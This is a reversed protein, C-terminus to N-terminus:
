SKRGGTHITAEASMGALLRLMQPQHSDLTIKVPIRQVVKTFNGTANDPTIASFTVGTAPSFSDVVGHLIDGGLSDVRVDVPQGQRVDQLQTEQFNAIVYAQRLPVLVLLPSGPRVFAGQRAVRQGVWGDAPATIQTYSLNLRATSAEARARLLEGSAREKEAQLIAIKDRAVNLSASDREVDAAATDIHARALQANQKSGAGQAALSLYRRLDAKAFTYNAQGANLVAEAQRIVSQQQRLSAEANDVAAQQVTLNAIAANMIAQLDRDDIDVLLDGRHVFQNDKVRVRIIQGTIRPTILTYDASVFADNTTQSNQDSMILVGTVAIAAAVLISTMIRQKLTFRTITM